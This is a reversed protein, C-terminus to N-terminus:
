PATETKPAGAAVGAATGPEVYRRVKQGSRLVHVGATVVEQGPELGGGVVLDNGEAGSVRIEQARVTMADRDLVWVITRGREEKLASLPLKTVGATHSLEVTATATRGLRVPARGIDAKVLFTRTVPDASASVERITAPWAAAPEGWIRVKVRGPKTSLTRVLEVKDEPVDFVVDRPGEHALRVVPAGAAVVMGPEADVGTIVGGADAVLVAYNAQNAQVLAQAQAQEARARAARLDTERRELEASSIFGQERLDRFRKLDAENRDLDAQAASLAARAGEEGLRLDRADLQALAQGPRVTDGLDVMRRVIKGAVRFGLRSETRARVEGAFDYSATTAQSAM